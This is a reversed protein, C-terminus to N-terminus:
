QQPRTGVEPELTRRFRMHGVPNLIVRQGSLVYVGHGLDTELDVEISQGTVDYEGTAVSLGVAVAVAKGTLVYHGTTFAAGAGTSVPEGTVAYMGTGLQMGAGQPHSAQGTYAYVGHAVPLSVGPAIGQGSLVYSGHAHIRGEGGVSSQGTLTYSGNAVPVDVAVTIPEGTLAYLGCGHPYVVIFGPGMLPDQGALEYEGFGLPISLGTTIGQGAVTYTGAAAVMEFVTPVQEQGYLTYVGFGAAMTLDHRMTKGTYTYTGADVAMTYISYGQAFGIVGYSGQAVPVDVGVNDPTQGTGNFSGFDLSFGMGVGAPQGTLAYTGADAEMVLNSIYTALTYADYVKAFGTTPKTIKWELTMTTLKDGTTSVSFAHSVWQAGAVAGFDHYATPTGDIILRGQLSASGTTECYAGITVQSVSDSASLAPDTLGLNGEEGTVAGQGFTTTDPTGAGHGGKDMCDYVSAPGGQPTWQMPTSDSAPDQFVTSM